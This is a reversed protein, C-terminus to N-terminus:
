FLLHALLDESIHDVKRLLYQPPPRPAPTPSVPDPNSPSCAGSMPHVGARGPTMNSIRTMHCLTLISSLKVVLYICTPMPM